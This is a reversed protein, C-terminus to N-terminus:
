RSSMEVLLSLAFLPKSDQDRLEAEFDDVATTGYLPTRGRAEKSPQREWGDQEHQEIFYFYFSDEEDAVGEDKTVQKVVVRIADGIDDHVL